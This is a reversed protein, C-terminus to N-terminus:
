DSGLYYIYTMHHMLCSRLIIPPRFIVIISAIKSYNYVSFFKFRIWILLTNGNYASLVYKFTNASALFHVM